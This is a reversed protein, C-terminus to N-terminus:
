FQKCYYNYNNRKCYEINKRLKEENDVKIKEEVKRGLIYKIIIIIVKFLIRAVKEWTSGM